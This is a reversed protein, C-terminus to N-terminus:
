QDEIPRLIIKAGTPEDNVAYRKTAIVRIIASDGGPADRLITAKLGEMLPNLLNDLDPGLPFGPLPSGPFLVFDVVLECPGSIKGLHETQSEVESQWGREGAKRSRSSNNSHPRGKIFTEVQMM